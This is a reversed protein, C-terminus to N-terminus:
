SGDLYPLPLNGKKKRHRYDLVVKGRPISHIDRNNLMLFPM